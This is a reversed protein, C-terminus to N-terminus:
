SEARATTGGPGKTQNGVLYACGHCRRAVEAADHLVSCAVLRLVGVNVFDILSPFRVGAREMVPVGDTEPSGSAAVAGVRTFAALLRRTPDGVNGEHCQRSVAATVRRASGVVVPLHRRPLPRARSIGRRSAEATVSARSTMAKPWSIM